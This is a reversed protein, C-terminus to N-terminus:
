RRYLPLVVSMVQSRGIPAFHFAVLENVIDYQYILRRDASSRTGIGNGVSLGKVPNTIEESRQRLGLLPTKRGTMKGEVNWSSTTFGALAIAGYRHLHLKKSIDFQNAFLTFARAVLRLNQFYPVAALVDM